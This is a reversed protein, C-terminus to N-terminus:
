FKFTDKLELWKQNKESLNLVTGDELTYGDASTSGTYEGNLEPWEIGIEPANWAM